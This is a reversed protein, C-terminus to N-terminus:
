FKLYNLDSEWDVTVANGGTVSLRLDNGSVTFDVSWSAAGSDKGTHTNTVNGVIEASGSGVRKVTCEIISGIVITHDSNEGIVEATILYVAGEDLTIAHLATETNDTTTINAPPLHTLGGLEGSAGSWEGGNNWIEFQLSTLNWISAGNFITGLADRQTTTSLAIVPDGDLLEIRLARYADWLTIRFPGQLVLAGGITITAKAQFGSGVAVHSVSYTSNRNTIDNKWFNYDQEQAFSPVASLLLFIFISVIYSSVKEM